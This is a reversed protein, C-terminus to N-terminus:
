IYNNGACALSGVSYVALGDMHLLYYRLFLCYYYDVVLLLALLLAARLLLLSASIISSPDDSCADVYDPWNKHCM